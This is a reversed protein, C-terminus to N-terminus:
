LLGLQLNRKQDNSNILITESMNGYLTGILSMVEVWTVVSDDILSKMYTHNIECDCTSPELWQKIQM